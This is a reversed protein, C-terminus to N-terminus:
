PVSCAGPLAPLEPDITFHDIVVDALNEFFVSYLKQSIDLPESRHSRRLAVSVRQWARSCAMLRNLYADREQWRNTFGADIFGAPRGVLPEFGRPRVMRVRVHSLPLAGSRWEPPAPEIGATRVLKRINPRYSLRSLLRRALPLHPNLDRESWWYEIGPFSIQHFCRMSFAPLNARFWGWAGALASYFRIFKFRSCFDRFGLAFLFRTRRIPCTSPNGM